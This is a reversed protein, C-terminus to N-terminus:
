AEVVSSMTLLAVTWHWEALINTLLQGFLLRLQLLFPISFHHSTDIEHAVLGSSSRIRSDRARRCRRILLVRLRRRKWHASHDRRCRRTRTSRALLRRIRRSNQDGPIDLLDGSLLLLHAASAVIRHHSSSHRSRTLWPWHASRAHSHHGTTSHGDRRHLRGCGLLLHPISSIRSSIVRRRRHLLLRLLM